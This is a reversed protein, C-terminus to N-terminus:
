STYGMVHTCHTSTVFCSLLNLQVCCYVFVLCLVVQSLYLCISNCQTLGCRIPCMGSVNATYALIGNGNQTSFWFSFMDLQQNSTSSLYLFSDNAFNVLNQDQCNTGTFGPPCECRHTFWLDRCVGGNQCPNPSCVETRTSGVEVNRSNVSVSPNLDVNVSNIMVDRIVGIFSQQTSLHLLSQTTTQPLGGLLTSNNVNLVTFRPDSAAQGYCVSGCQLNDLILDARNAATTVDVTHLRGDNLNGGISTEGARGGTTYRLRLSGSM